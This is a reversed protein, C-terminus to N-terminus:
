LLYNSVVKGLQGEGHGLDRVVERLAKKDFCLNNFGRTWYRDEKPIQNLPRSLTIYRNWAFDRRGYGHVDLSGSIQGNETLTSIIRSYGNERTENIKAEVYSEYDKRVTVTRPRAGKTNEPKGRLHMKLQGNDRYFNEPKVREVESRRLGTGRAFEVVEKYKGETPNLTSKNGIEDPRSKYINDRTNQPIKAPIEACNKLGLLKALSNRERSVTTPRKGEKIRRNLYETAHAVKIKDISKIGKEKLFDHFRMSDQMAAQFSNSSFIKEPINLKSGRPDNAKFKENYAKKWEHRSESYGTKPDWAKMQELRSVIQKKLSGKKSM